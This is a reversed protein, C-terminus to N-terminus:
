AKLFHDQPCHNHKRDKVVFVTFPKTLYQHFLVDHGLCLGMEIVFEADSDNVSRAQGIPNCNVAPGLKPSIENERIGNISCRVSSIVFGERELANAVNEAMREMAFCYALAIEKYGQAKSFLVIEEFRSLTGALGNSVLSDAHSYLSQNDASLYHPLVSDHAKNCDKAESKCAKNKCSLCRM